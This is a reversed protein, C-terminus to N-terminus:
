WSPIERRPGTITDPQRAPVPIPLQGGDLLSRWAGTLARGSYPSLAFEWPEGSHENGERFKIDGHAIAAAAFDFGRSIKPLRRAVLWRNTEDVWSSLSVKTNLETTRFLNAIRDFALAFARLAEDDTKQVRMRPYATWVRDRLVRLENMPVMLLSPALPYTIRVGDPAPSASALEALLAANQRELMANQTELDDRETM